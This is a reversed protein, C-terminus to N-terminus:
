CADINAIVIILTKYNSRVCSEVLISFTALSCTKARTNICFVRLCLRKSAHHAALLKDYSM